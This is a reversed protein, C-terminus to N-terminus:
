SGAALGHGRRDAIFRCATAKEVLGQPCLIANVRGQAPGPVVTHGREALGPPRGQVAAEVMVEDPAGPHHVRVADLAEELPREGVLARVAVQALASAGPWGGAAAGAFVFQGVRRRVALMPGLGQAGRSVGDPTAALVVGTGPAVRGVGFLGHPTVACAAASGERDAAVVSAAAADIARPVPRPQLSSAPTRQDPRYTAMLQRLRAESVLDGVPANASSDPALWRTRDWAARLSAEALLHLREDGGARRWRQAAMAFMQAEYLGAVAPPPAFHVSLDGERVIVTPRRPAQVARLDEATLSGGVSNAGAVIRDALAGTYVEGGGRARMASLIDALDQQVLREGEAPPTGDPRLFIRRAEPDAALTPAAAALDAAFARSVPAGFRALGEAPAVVQEWRLRGYQGQLAFVGRPVAPVAVLGPAAPARAAFDLAEVRNFRVDYVVCVGGGGLSASSPLTVGLALLAAAAADAANGGAALMDRGILAARPEDAVVGGVFGPPPAERDLIVNACGALALTATLTAAAARRSRQRLAGAHKRKSTM